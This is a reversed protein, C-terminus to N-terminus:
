VDFVAGGIDVGILLLGHLQMGSLVQLVVGMLVMLLRGGTLIGLLTFEVGVLVGVLM